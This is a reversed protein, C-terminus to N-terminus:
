EVANLANSNVTVGALRRADKRFTADVERRKKLLLSQRLAPEVMAFSKTSGSRSDTKMVLYFGAETQLVESVKGNELAYGGELVSRPWHYTVKGADLWGIDGGRYRSAQDDSYEVALTGFGPAVASKDNLKPNALFKQRAELLRARIEERRAESSKANAELFLIALRVKAPQTYNGVNQEYEAKTEEESVSVKELQAAVDREILKAILLNNLERAVQPDKDLGDTRARQLLAEHEVMEDLLTQKDPVSHRNARRRSVEQLLDATRIERGGVKALVDKDPKPQKSCGGSVAVFLAAGVLACTLTSNLRSCFPKM